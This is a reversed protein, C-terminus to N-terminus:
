DGAGVTELEKIVRELAERARFRPSLIAPHRLHSDGFHKLACTQHFAINCDTCRDLEDWHEIPGNSGMFNKVGCIPPIYETM